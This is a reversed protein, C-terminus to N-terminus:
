HGEIAALVKVPTFPVSRLRVGLADFVANSIASPVITAAPEGAGWPRENPRDILEIIVDPVEPFTLIPYTAWHLSTVASRDFLIEEKLTRSVTQIINGEIQNKVGDPNIIQGCDHVVFFRQVSIEGTRRDVEVEAVAGVYTRGLEYKVYSIGRGQAIGGGGKQPSPRNQWKALTTLRQLLEIGRADDLHALRFELPDAEVSAALEDMFCENAFTSQLRGPSRIWSPRFLTEALLHAVTKVNALTYPIASNEAFVNQFKARVYQLPPETASPLGALTAAVLPVPKLGDEPVFSESEWAVVQGARDLGARLDVLIPPGKPDWGHEDARMWQVRVPRGGVARSLLAADGAADEHGNRGYCGSGEIYLCRVNDLPIAMMAALQNRLRHPAQSASWCTIKGEIIEVVACSPGLSGHTHIAFDYTASIRKPADSLANASNGVNSSIEDSNVRTARVHEWLHTREPLGEWKSWTAKLKRAAQIAGWETTAVVGLFNGERVVKVFGPVDNVSSGDVNELKAGIALPRVVRGHLMGPVRFDQMYTFHGTAKPPIDVRPVSKGAIAYLAPDKVPADKDVKLSFTSGGVLEAYSISRDGAKISGDEIRLGAASVGLRQAAMEALAKRATAAAKRIQMGGNQISLSGWTPGQDPTLATDGQILNVQDLPVDLEEAAIQTLATRLGTGLDVKGSYVTVQGDADISLFADVQDSAVTKNRASSQALASCATAALTFTVLLAGGTKLVDRRTSVFDPM